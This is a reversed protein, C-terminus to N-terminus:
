DLSHGRVMCEGKDHPVHVVLPRQIPSPQFGDIPDERLGGFLPLPYGATDVEALSLLAILDCKCVCESFALAILLIVIVKCETIWVTVHNIPTNISM